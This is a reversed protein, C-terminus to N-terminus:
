YRELLVQRRFDYLRKGSTVSPAYSTFILTVYDVVNPIRM